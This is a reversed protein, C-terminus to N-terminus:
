TPTIQETIPLKQEGKELTRKIYYYYQSKIKASILLDGYLHSSPPLPAFFHTKGLYFFTELSVCEFKFELKLNMKYKVRTTEDWLSFLVVIFVHMYLTYTHIFKQM